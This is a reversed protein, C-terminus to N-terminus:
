PPAVCHGQASCVRNPACDLKSNCQQTCSFPTDGCAYPYCHVTPYVMHIWDKRDSCMPPAAKPRLDALEAFAEHLEERLMAESAECHARQTECAKAKEGCRALMGMCDIGDKRDEVKGLTYGPDRAPASAQGAPQVQASAAWGALCGILALAAAIPGSKGTSAVTWGRGATSGQSMPFRGCPVGADAGGM